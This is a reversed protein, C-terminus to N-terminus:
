VALKFGIILGSQLFHALLVEVSYPYEKAAIDAFPLGQQIDALFSLGGRGEGTGGIDGIREIHMAYDLGRWIVFERHKEILEFREEQCPKESVQEGVQESVQQNMLWIKDIPFISSLLGLSPQLQFLIKGQQEASVQALEALPQMGAEYLADKANFGQHWLWELRAVDALYNLNQQEVRPLFDELYDGLFEGYHGVDPSSSPYQQLYGAVMQTFYAEGVLRTCVPYIGMLATTMAALISDRYISLRADASLAKTAEIDECATMVNKTTPEFVANYFDQQWSKINALIAKESNAM